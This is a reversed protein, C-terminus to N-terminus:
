MFADIMYYVGLVVGFAGGIFGWVEGRRRTVTIQAMRQGYMREMWSRVLRTFPRRSVLVALGLVIALVGVVLQFGVNMAM